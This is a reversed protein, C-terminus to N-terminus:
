LEPSLERLNEDALHIIPKLVQNMHKVKAPKENTPEPFDRHDQVFTTFFKQFLYQQADDTAEITLVKKSNKGGTCNMQISFPQHFDEVARFFNNKSNKFKLLRFQM